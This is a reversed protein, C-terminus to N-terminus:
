GHRAICVRELGALDARTRVSGLGHQRMLARVAAGQDFGHELVLVGVQNLHAGAGAIITQLCSLGDGEDTLAHRPECGLEALHPDAAAIYPPNSVILDFRRGRVPAYWDGHLFEAQAALEIANIQALALASESADTAVVRADPRELALVIAVCGSGTGLELISPDSLGEMEHLAAEVLGETEPRPILVSPDVAFRRGFFEREGLLYAMPEGAQRRGCLDGFRRAATSGVPGQPHAILWERSADLAFALLSRAETPAIGSSAILDAVRNEAAGNTRRGEGGAGRGSAHSLPSTGGRDREAPSPDPTLTRAEPPRM